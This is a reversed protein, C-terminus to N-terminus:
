RTQRQWFGGAISFALAKLASPGAGKLWAFNYCSFVASDVVM